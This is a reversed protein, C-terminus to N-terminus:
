GTFTVPKAVREEPVSAHRDFTDALRAGRATVQRFFFLEREIRTAVAARDFPALERPMPKGGVCFYFSDFRFRPLRGTHCPPKVQRERSRLDVSKEDHGVVSPRGRLFAFVAPGGNCAFCSARECKLVASSIFLFRLFWLRSLRLFFYLPRCPESGCVAHQLNRDATRPWPEVQDCAIYTTRAAGPAYLLLM